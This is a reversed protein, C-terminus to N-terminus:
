PTVGFLPVDNPGPIRALDEPSLRERRDLWPVGAALADFDEESWRPGDSWDTDVFSRVVGRGMPEMVDGGDDVWAMAYAIPREWEADYGWEAIDHNWYEARQSEPMEAYFAILDITTSIRVSFDFDVKTASM